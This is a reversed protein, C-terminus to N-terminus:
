LWSSGRDDFCRRHSSWIGGLQRHAVQSQRVTYSRHQYSRRRIQTINRKIIKAYAQCHISSNKCLSSCFNNQQYNLICNLKLLQLVHEESFIRLRSYRTLAKVPDSKSRVPSLTSRVIRSKGTGSVSTSQQQSSRSAKLEAFVLKRSLCNMAVKMGLLETDVMDTKSCREPSSSRM